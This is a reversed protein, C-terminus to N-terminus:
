EPLFQMGAVGCSSSGETRGPGAPAPVFLGAPYFGFLLPGPGVPFPQDGVWELVTVGMTDEFEPPTGALAPEIEGALHGWVLVCGPTGGTVRMNPGGGTRYVYFTAEASETHNLYFFQPNDGPYLTGGVTYSLYVSSVGGAEVTGDTRPTVVGL